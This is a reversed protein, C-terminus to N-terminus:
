SPPEVIRDIVYTPRGRALESARWVYEGLWGLSLLNVGSLILSVVLVVAWGSVDRGLALAVLLAVASLLGIGAVFVGAAFALRMPLPTFGVLADLAYRRRKAFTWMSRGYKAPRAQREYSITMPDFGFWVIEGPLYLSRDKVGLILDVVQRDLLCMDFGGAPMNRVAFRRFFAYFVAAFLRTALPDQRGGRTALVVKRGKKWHGIMEGLLEPPDQLDAAVVAVAAGRAQSMGAPVAREAGFNRALKVLRMRRENRVLLELVAFSEDRSGDDVFVFEFQDDVHADALAQLRALLDPLSAANHFVPVVVSILAM